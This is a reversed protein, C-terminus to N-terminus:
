ALPDGALTVRTTFDFDMYAHVEPLAGLTDASVAYGFTTNDPLAAKVAAVVLTHLDMILEVGSPEAAHTEPRQRYASKDLALDVAVSFAQERREQHRQVGPTHLIAYPMDSADPLAGGEVDVYLKLPRGFQANAWAAIASSQAIATAFLSFFDFADM